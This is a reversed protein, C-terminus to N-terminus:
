AVDLEQQVPGQQVPTMFLFAPVVSWAVLIAFYASEPILRFWNAALLGSILIVHALVAWILSAIVQTKAMPNILLVKRYFAIALPIFILVATLLGPNYSQNVVGSLIHSIANVLVIGNMALAPFLYTPSRWIAIVGVLWVLSTNIVFIAAQSAPVVSSDPSGLLALLVANLYGYFAYQNGLLDIWYM